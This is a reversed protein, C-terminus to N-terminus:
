STSTDFNSDLYFVLELLNLTNQLILGDPMSLYRRAFRAWRADYGREAASARNDIYAHQPAHEACYTDTILARCGPHMCFHPSRSAM